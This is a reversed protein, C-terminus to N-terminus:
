LQAGLLVLVMQAIQVREVRGALRAEGGGCTEGVVQDRVIDVADALWGVGAVSAPAVSAPAVLREIGVQERRKTVVGLQLRREALHVLRRRRASRWGASARAASPRALAAIM